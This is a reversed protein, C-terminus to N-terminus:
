PSATHAATLAPLLAPALEPFAGLAERVAAATDPDALRSRDAAAIIRDAYLRRLGPHKLVAPAAPPELDPVGPSSLPWEAAIRRLEEVLVDGPALRTALAVLSPLFRLTLDASYLRSFEDAAGGEAGAAPATKRFAKKVMEAGADRWLTFQCGRYILQAAWRATPPHFAPVPGPAHLRWSDEVVALATDWEDEEPPEGPAM